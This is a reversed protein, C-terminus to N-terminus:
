LRPPIRQLVASPAFRRPAPPPKRAGGHIGSQREASRPVSRGAADDKLRRSDSWTASL